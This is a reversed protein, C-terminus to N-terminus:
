QIILGNTLSALVNGSSDVASVTYTGSSGAPITFMAQALQNSKAYYGTGTITAVSNTLQLNSASGLNTGVISILVGPTLTGGTTVVTPSVTVLTVNTATTGTGTTTTTATTSGELIDFGNQYRYSQGDPNTVLIDWFGTTTGSPIAFSCTIFSPSTLSVGTAAISSEGTKVLAVTAGSQFGQGDLETISVTTGAQGALPTVGTIRPPSLAATTATTTVSPTQTTSVVVPTAAVTPTGTPVASVDVNGVKQTYAQEIISRSVKASSSDIRHGWSGDSNPYIYAREYVDSVPDYSIILVAAGTSKPNRIIDGPGYLASSTAAPTTVAAQGSTGTSSSSDSCGASFACALLLAVLGLFILSSKDM